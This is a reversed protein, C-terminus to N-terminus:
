LALPHMIMLSRRSHRGAREGKNSSFDLALLGTMSEGM